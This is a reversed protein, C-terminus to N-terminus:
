AEVGMRKELNRTEKVLAEFAGEKFDMSVSQRDYGVREVLLYLLRKQEQFGLGDWRGDLLELAHNVEDEDIEDDWTRAYKTELDEIEKDLTKVQGNLEGWRRLGDDGLKGKRRGTEILADMNESLDTGKKRILEIQGKLKERAMTKKRRIAEVAHAVFGPERSLGRVRMVVSREIAPASVSKVPCSSCGQRQAKSCIYYTYRVTAKQTYNPVMVVDCAECFLLGRLLVTDTMSSTRNRGGGRTRQKLREQVEQWVEEEVIGDHEGEYVEDRYAVKGIYTINRLLERVLPVHFEGGGRRKGAKSTWEKTRWGRLNMEEVVAVLSDHELYLRFMERVRAAEAENVVLRRNGRDVNYGLIPNGGMWKGMRKSIAIKDRTREGIIEREFQAFSMLINVNLRGVSDTTDISQTVAVFGVGHEELTEMIKCFDHISRTLRDIKYVILTQVKKEEVDALLRRLAPRNMDAGSFGADDYREPSCLWGESRRSAIFAEASKRQAELSNLDQDLREETSVRTYIACHTYPHVERKSIKSNRSIRSSRQRPM